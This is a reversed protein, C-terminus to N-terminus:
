SRVQPLLEELLTFFEQLDAMTMDAMHPIRFTKNKIKGYGNDMAYGREGALKKLQELDTRGDNCGSTLTNSRCGEAAFLGFGQQLMWNRTTEAMKAHRQYRNNLGEVFMKKLQADLGYILSICPTSPTNHKLDNKEFEEFDFYYGRNPTAKAKNLAPRSTACVALGPPLGFAKQVGALCIDIGLADVDIPVATMSSVTDVIFSVYPYKKMVEAIEALPSMVGTSTENHVMTMADYDGSALANDVMAATIPQGWEASFLDAKIGCRKTVDHWKTSFAGNGFNACRKQVLNRVAGEMIGFASSTVLFVPNKTNLLTQLQGTVSAHLEAYEPMRHGIMPASMAAFVDASVEVPGPIYLKKAM